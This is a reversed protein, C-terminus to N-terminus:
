FLPLCKNAFSIERRRCPTPRSTPPPPAPSSERGQVCASYLGCGADLAHSPQETRVREPGRGPLHGLCWRPDHKATDGWTQFPSRGDGGDGGGGAWCLEERTAPPPPPPPSVAGTAGAPITKGMQCFHDCVCQRASNQTEDTGRELADPLVNGQWCGPSPETQCRGWRRRVGTQDPLGKSVPMQPTGFEEFWAATFLRTCVTNQWMHHVGVMKHANHVPNSYGKNYGHYAIVVGM